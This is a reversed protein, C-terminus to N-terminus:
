RTPQGVIDVLIAMPDGGPVAPVQILARSGVPEGILVDFPTTGDGLTMVAIKEDQWTSASEESRWVDIVYHLATSGEQTEEGKGRALVSVTAEEPAPADDKITIEAPEGLEGDIDVPLDDLAGDVIDAYADGASTAGYSDIIDVVFVITDGKEIGASPQGEPTAWNRRSRFCCAAAWMKVLSARTGARSSQPSASRSCRPSAAPSPIISPKAMGYRASTTPSWTM